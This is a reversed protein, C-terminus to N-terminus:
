RARAYARRANVGSGCARTAAARLSHSACFLRRATRTVSSKPPPCASNSTRTQFLIIFLRKIRTHRRTIFLKRTKKRVFRRVNRQAKVGQGPLQRLHAGYEVLRATLGRGLRCVAFPQLKIRPQAPQIPNRGRVRGTRKHKLPIFGAPLFNHRGPCQAKGRVM